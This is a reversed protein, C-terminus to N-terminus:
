RVDAPTAPIDAERAITGMTPWVATFERQRRGVYVRNAVAEVITACVIAL